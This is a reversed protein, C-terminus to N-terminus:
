SSRSPCESDKRFSTTTKRVALNRRESKKLYNTLMYNFSFLSLSPVVYLFITILMNIALNYKAKCDRYNLESGNLTFQPSCPPNFACYQYVVTAPYGFESTMQEPIVVPTIEYFLLCPISLLFAAVWICLSVVM